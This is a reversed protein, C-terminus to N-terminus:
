LKIGQEEFTKKSIEDGDYIEVLTINNIVCWDWKKADHKLQKIFKSTRTGHFHPVFESHQRGQVEVAVRRSHNYIDL